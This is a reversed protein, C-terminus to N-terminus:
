LAVTTLARWRRAGDAPLLRHAGFSADLYECIVVSDAYSLGDDTTLVPIKGLPNDHWFDPDNIRLATPVLMMRDSIGLEHAVVRVKRVYPSHSSFRLKM